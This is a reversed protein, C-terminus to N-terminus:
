GAATHLRDTVFPTFSVRRVLLMTAAYIGFLLFEM